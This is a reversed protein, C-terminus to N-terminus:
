LTDTITYIKGGSFKIEPAVDKINPATMAQDKAIKEVAELNKDSPAINGKPPAKVTIYLTTTLSTSRCFAVDQVLFVAAWLVVLALLIRKGSRM